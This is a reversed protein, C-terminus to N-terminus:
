LNNNHSSATGDINLMVTIWVGVLIYREFIQSGVELWNVVVSNEVDTWSSGNHKVEFLCKYKLLASSSDENIEM